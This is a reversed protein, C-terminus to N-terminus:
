ISTSTASSARVLKENLVAPATTRGSIVLLQGPFFLAAVFQDAAAPSKRPSAISNESGSCSTLEKALAASKRTKRRAGATMLSAAILSAGLVAFRRAHFRM